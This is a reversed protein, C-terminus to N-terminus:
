EIFKNLWAEAKNIDKFIRVPMPTKNVSIFFSSILRHFKSTVVIATATIGETAEASSLYERAARDMSIIGHNIIITAIKKGGTFDIRTRVIEKALELDIHLKEKYTGILIKGKLSLHLYPTDLEM